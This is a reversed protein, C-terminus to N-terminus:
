YVNYIDDDIKANFSISRREEDSDKFPYVTHMMYNPFLYFNGVEPQINYISNSMFMRSGNILQLNGGMYDKSPKKQKHTGFTTPLKLFGAGSIHGTHWHVPNYEHKFQRVIWTNLLNFKTIKKGIEHLVWTGTCDALFKLWGIETVFDKELKFEQTVDGVLRDGNDLESSKKKNKIINDTYKNLEKILHDPIKVKFISPGFHKIFKYELEM